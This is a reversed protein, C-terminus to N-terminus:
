IQSFNKDLTGEITVEDLVVKLNKYNDKNENRNYTIEIRGLYYKVKGSKLDDPNVGVEDKSCNFILALDQYPDRKGRIEIVKKIM